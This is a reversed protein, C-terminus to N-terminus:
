GEAIKKLEEDQQLDKSAFKWLVYGDQKVAALVVERDAKLSKAAHELALGDQKVAALVIKRDAKFSKAKRFCDIKILKQFTAVQYRTVTQSFYPDHPDGAPPGQYNTVHGEMDLNLHRLKTLNALGDVYSLSLCEGLDLSTLKTCNALVDVDQLSVGYHLNLDKLKTLNALGDSDQLSECYYLSM